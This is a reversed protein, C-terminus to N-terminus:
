CHSTTPLISCLLFDYIINLITDFITLTETYQGRFVVGKCYPVEVLINEQKGCNGETKGKTVSTLGESPIRWGMAFAARAEGLPNTKHTFGVM